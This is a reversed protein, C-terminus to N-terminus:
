NGIVLEHIGPAIKNQNETPAPQVKSSPPAKIPKPGRFSKEKNILNMIQGGGKFLKSFIKTASGM